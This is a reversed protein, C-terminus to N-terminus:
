LRGIEPTGVTKQESLTVEIGLENVEKGYQPSTSYLGSDWDAAPLNFDAAIIM